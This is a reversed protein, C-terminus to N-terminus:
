VTALNSMQAANLSQWNGARFDYTRSIRLMAFTSGATAAEENLFNKLTLPIYRCVM